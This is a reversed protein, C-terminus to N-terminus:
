SNVINYPSSHKVLLACLLASVHVHHVDFLVLSRIQLLLCCNFMGFSLFNSSSDLSNILGM